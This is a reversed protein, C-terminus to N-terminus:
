QLRGLWDILGRVSMQKGEPPVLHLRLEGGV